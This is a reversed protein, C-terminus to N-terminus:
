RKSSRRRYALLGIALAGLAGLPATPSKEEGPVACGCGGGAIALDDKGGPAPQVLVKVTDTSSLANATVQLSFTLETPKDVAPAKFTAKAGNPTLGSAAGDLQSWTFSLADGDPDASKGGDLTVAAACFTQCSPM